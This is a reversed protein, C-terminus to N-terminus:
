WRCWCGTCWPRGYGSRCPGRVDSSSMGPSRPVPSSPCPAPPTTLITPSYVIIPTIRHFYASSAFLKEEVCQSNFSAIGNSCSKNYGMFPSFFFDPVLMVPRNRIEFLCTNAFDFDPFIRSVLPESLPGISPLNVSSFILLMSQFRQVPCGISSM